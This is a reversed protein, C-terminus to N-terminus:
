AGDCYYGCKFNSSPVITTFCLHYHDLVLMRGHSGDPRPKAPTPGMEGPLFFFLDMSGRISIRGADSTAHGSM